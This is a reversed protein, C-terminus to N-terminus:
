VVSQLGNSRQTLVIVLPEKTIQNASRSQSTESTAEGSDDLTARALAVELQQDDGVVFVKHLQQAARAVDLVEVADSLVLVLVGLDGLAADGGEGGIEVSCVVSEWSKKMETACIDIQETSKPLIPVAQFAYEHM